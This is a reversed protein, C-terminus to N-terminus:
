SRRLLLVPITRIGATKKEYEVFAPFRHAQEAFIRDREAGTVETVTVAFTETGVEVEASGADVLNHYWGPNQPSGSKTAFIYIVRDDTDSPLYLTPSVYQEGSRRGRHHVLTVPTSPFRSVRGQNARFEDIVARNWDSAASM